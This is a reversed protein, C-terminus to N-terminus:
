GGCISDSLPELKEFRERVIDDPPQTDQAFIVVNGLLNNVRELKASNEKDLHIEGDHAYVKPMIYNRLKVLASEGVKSERGFFKELDSNLFEQTKRHKYSEANGSYVWLKSNKATVPLVEGHIYVKKISPFADFRYGMFEAPGGAKDWGYYKLVQGGTLNSWHIHVLQDKGDHFHIPENSIKTDCSTSTIPTQFEPDGFNINKGEVILQMRFHSHEFQPHRVNDPSLLFATGVGIIWAFLFSLVVGIFSKAATKM